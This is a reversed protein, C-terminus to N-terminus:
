SLSDFFEQFWLELTILAWIRYAHNIKTNVHTDLLQKVAEKKFIGRSIAKDSLLTEYMYDKMENRFWHEIPVGFGMKKRYLIEKPILEKELAKKLIYKKNNFGKLKLHAPIQATMEMFKHDLFPSRSELGHAMTAIDVKVLLADPLYTVIDAYVTQDIKNTAKAQSFAQVIIDNTIINKMKERMAESYLSNKAETSFYQIYSLYRENYPLSLTEAFTQAHNTLTTKFISNIFKVTPKALLNHLPGIKDYWLGFKQISYRGYGAFNEDGGDGNLAVTVHERTKKALYYTPLASSDAYPEEYQKVLIPLLEMADPKVIFKTHDTKYKDAIIQAYKTEDHDSENFGISFTKIPQSSNKAMLAVVASSDIGGSLFAGLPVDAIMRLKVAEELDTLIKEEWKQKPLNLKKTYNLQWYREKKIKGNNCDIILYHAPELKKIGKFGTLPAPVYQLTLYHHIATYDIEKKYEPQTLISKLESAFMFVSNDTCYKLPKKGLRDRACVLQNKQHDYLAFAFMGRLHKLFEMGYKDYLAMIVETDTKSKFRYGHRQLQEREEQFNYVEGNFVITYKKDNHQYHMPQHGLPSLDIISLRQQGLGIKNDPAIYVGSDDPGRHAIAKNMKAITDETVIQPNNKFYIKGTIGCM